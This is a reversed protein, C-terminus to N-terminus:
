MKIRLRTFKNKNRARRKQVRKLKFLFKIQKPVKKKCEQHYNLCLRSIKNCIKLKMKSSESPTKLSKLKKIAVLVVTEYFWLQGKILRVATVPGLLKKAIMEWINLSFKIVILSTKVASLQVSYLYLNVNSLLIINEIKM